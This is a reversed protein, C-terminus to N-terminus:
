DTITRNEIFTFIQESLKYIIYMVIAGDEYYFANLRKIYTKSLLSFITVSETRLLAQIEKDVNENTSINEKYVSLLRLIHHKINLNYYFDILKDIPQLDIDINNQM